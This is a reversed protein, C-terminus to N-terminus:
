NKQKGNLKDIIYRGGVQASQGFNAIYKRRIQVIKSAYKEGSEILKDIAPCLNDLENQEIQIGIESRLSIELPKAEIADYEPNNIKPPTNIFIVPKNTVFAFEYATGSWDSIVIDSNYISSSDTFDLEFCIDDGKYDKYHEAISNMKAMYRKVYEPHPRVVVDYGKGLLRALVDHICSDLINQEQWSPAILIKKRDRRTKDMTDYQAKLEELLSYGCLVLNKAPLDSRKETQRIEDFQFEGVCFITNYYDLAGKRLVMTTSLPYHFMYVYDINKKVLSRKLHFQQLDSMTMVFIDTEIKMFLITLRNDDIYYPCIRPNNIKFVQDNPDSTVYHIVIDSHELIYGIVGKFYKYFGSKESYFVLQKVNDEVFFRKYDEKARAKQEATPKMKKELEKSQALAAKSRELAEYDIHKKPPYMLNVILMVILSIINSFIWYAGVGAPVIFAFYLSFLTLFIAMGWRGFWGAEKQLVNIKNQVASLLFASGGSLVPVLLLINWEFAPTLALNIGLFNLDLSSINAVADAANAATLEAFANACSPDNVLEIVKLHAGSDLRAYNLLESAKETLAAITEKDIHLLHQLPNYVVAILGLIVPIQILLPITGAMPRYQEQKYLALQKETIADWRGANAAAIENLRPKLKIMKISNKQVWINLPFMLAKTLLTFLLIAIGYNKVLMFCLWMIYGLPVGIITNIFDM